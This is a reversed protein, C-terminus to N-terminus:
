ERRPYTPPAAGARRVGTSWLASWCAVLTVVLQVAREVLEGPGSGRDDASVLGRAYDSVERAAARLALRAQAKHSCRADMMDSSWGRRVGASVDAQAVISQSAIQVYM